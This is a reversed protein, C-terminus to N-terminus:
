KENGRISIGALYGTSFAAQLNFGGTKADIDIVEGCFFLGSVLKSEMTQPNIENVSVGGRTIIARNFGELGKIKLRFDTLAKLILNREKKNIQSCKKTLQLNSYKIFSKIIQKPLLEKLMEQLSYQGYKDLERLLRNNLQEESLAPKFNLSIFNDGNENFCESIISSLSLVIPGDVGHSTFEMEGFEKEIIKNNKIFALEVNKLKLGQLEKLYTNELTLPTLAPIPKIITHGFSEAIKYGDGTSGTSPYSLGGTALIINKSFLTKKNDSVKFIGNEKFINRVEFSTEIKAYKKLDKILANVIDEAKDNAPFYRGGRELRCKVDAKEFFDILDTNSFSTLAKYLFKGNKFYSVFENIGASNTLNCRGKGTISLKIGPRAKKELLIVQLSNKGAAIGAMMGSAGAGIILVDAIERM